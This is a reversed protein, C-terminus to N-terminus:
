LREPFKGELRSFFKQALVVLVLCAALMIFGREWLDPPFEKAYEEPQLTPAWFLRQLLMVSEALPNAFYLEYAWRHNEGLKAIYSYAYMMPVLFHLFQTMTTVINQFDRFFVNLAAFFLALAM